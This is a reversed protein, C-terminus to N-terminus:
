VSIMQLALQLNITHTHIRDKISSIDSAKLKLKIQKIVKRLSNSAKDADGLDQLTAGLANVTHQSDNITHNVSTWVGSALSTYKSTETVIPQRLAHDIAELVAALSQIEDHLNKVSDDVSKASTIFTFLTQSVSGVAQSAALVAAAISLPDM